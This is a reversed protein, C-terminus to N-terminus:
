ISLVPMHYSYSYSLIGYYHTSPVYVTPRISSSGPVGIFCWHMQREPVSGGLLGRVVMSLGLLPGTCPYSRYKPGVPATVHRRQPELIHTSYLLTFRKHMSGASLFLPFVDFACAKFGCVDSSSTM